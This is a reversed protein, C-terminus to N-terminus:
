NVVCNRAAIHRGPWIGLAVVCRGGLDVAALVAANHARQGPDVFAGLGAETGRQLANAIGRVISLSRETQNPRDTVRTSDEATCTAGMIFDFDLAVTVTNDSVLKGGRFCLVFLNLLM